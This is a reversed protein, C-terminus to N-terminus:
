MKMPSFNSPWYSNGYLLNKQAYWNNSKSRLVKVELLHWFQQELVLLMGLIDIAEECPVRVLNNDVQLSVRIIFLGFLGVISFLLCFFICGLRFNILVLLLQLLDGLLVESFEMSQRMNHSGNFIICLYHGLSSVFHCSLVLQSWIVIELAQVFVISQAVKRPQM